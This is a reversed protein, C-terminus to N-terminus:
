NAWGIETEHLKEITLFFGVMSGGDHPPTGITLPELWEVEVTM